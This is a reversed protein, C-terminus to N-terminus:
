SCPSREPMTAETLSIEFFECLASVFCSADRSAISAPDTARLVLWRWSWISSSAGSSITCAMRSSTVMMRSMLVADSLFEGPRFFSIESLSLCASSMTDSM